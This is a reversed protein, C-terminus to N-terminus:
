NQNVQNLKATLEEVITELESIRKKLDQNEAIVDDIKMTKREEVVKKEIKMPETKFKNEIETIEAYTTGNGVVDAVTFSGTTVLLKAVNYLSDYQKMYGKNLTVTVAASSGGGSSVTLTPNGTYGAGPDTM